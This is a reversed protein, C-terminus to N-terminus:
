APYMYKRKGGYGGGLIVANTVSFSDLVQGLSRAWM